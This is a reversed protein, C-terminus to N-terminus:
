GARTLRFQPLVWPAQPGDIREFVVEMKSGVELLACEDVGVNAYVLLGPQELLEVLVVGYPVQAVFYPHRAGSNTISYSYVRGFGSVPEFGVEMSTCAMCYAAFPHQWRRCRLCRQIKLSGAEINDWFEASLDDPLPQPRTTV